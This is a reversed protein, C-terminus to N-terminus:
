ESPLTGEVQQVPPQMSGLTQRSAKSLLYYGWQSDVLSGVRCRIVFNLQVPQTKEMPRIKSTM